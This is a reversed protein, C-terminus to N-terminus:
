RMRPSRKLLFVRETRNKPRIKTIAEIWGDGADRLGHSDSRVTRQAVDRGGGPRKSRATGHTRNKLMVVTMKTNVANDEALLVNGKM